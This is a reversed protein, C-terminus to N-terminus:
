NDVKCCSYRGLFSRVAAAGDAVIAVSSHVSLVNDPYTSFKPPTFPINVALKSEHGLMDTDASGLM